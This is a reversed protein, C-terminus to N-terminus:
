PLLEPSEDFEGTEPFFTGYPVYDNSYCPYRYTGRTADDNGVFRVELAARRKWRPGNPYLDELAHPWHGHLAKYEKMAQHSSKLIQRPRNRFGEHDVYNASAFVVCFILICPLISISSNMRESPLSEAPVDFVLQISAFLLALSIIMCLLPWIKIFNLGIVPPTYDRLFARLLVLAIPLIASLLLTVELRYQFLFKKLQHTPLNVAHLELNSYRPAKVPGESFLLM